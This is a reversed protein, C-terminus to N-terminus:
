IHALMAALLSVVGDNLMGAQLILVRVPCDNGDVTQLREALM